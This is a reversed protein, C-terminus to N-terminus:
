PINMPLVYLIIGVSYANYHSTQHNRIITPLSSSLVLGVSCGDHCSCCLSFMLVDTRIKEKNRKEGLRVDSWFTRECLQVYM